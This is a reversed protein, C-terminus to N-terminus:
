YSKNCELMSEFYQNELSRGRGAIVQLGVRMMVLINWMDEPFHLFSIHKLWMQHLTDCPLIVECVFEAVVLTKQQKQRKISKEVHQFSQQSINSM